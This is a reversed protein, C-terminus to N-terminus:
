SSPNLRTEFATSYFRGDAVATGKAAFSSRGFDGSEGLAPDSLSFLLTLLVYFLRTM